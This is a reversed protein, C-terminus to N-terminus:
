NKKSIKAVFFGDTDNDQPYIRLCKRVAPDYSKGLFETICSSRKINLEIEETRADGHMSLLYDVVEEDEEPELSCTSYVMTGGPKLCNFATEILGKQISALRSIGEPTWMELTKLSKRITGTGSCPADVLIRDFSNTKFRHGKMVTVVVNVIGARQLNMALAPIRKSDPDNSVLVGTNEMMAAIQTTKSGPAACMDLVMEDRKADLVMAPIMSAPEQVYFYGLTHEPLNGIDRRDLTRHSIWFGERCWPVQELKWTKELRAKLKEVTIKLTNIRISRKPFSFSYKVFDDYRNGLLIKYRDVFKGKLFDGPHESATGATKRTM